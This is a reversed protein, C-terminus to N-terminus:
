LVRPNPHALVSEELPNAWKHVAVDGRLIAAFISSAAAAPDNFDRVLDGIPLREGYELRERAVFVIEEDPTNARFRCLMRCSTLRPEARIVRETLLRYTIQHKGLVDSLLETRHRVTTQSAEDEYKVEILAVEEGTVTMVDPLHSRIDGADAYRLVLPQTLFASVAADTELLYLLDRELSSVYPMRTAMKRSAFNGIGRSTRNHRLQLAPEAGDSVVFTNWRDIAALKDRLRFIADIDDQLVSPTIM